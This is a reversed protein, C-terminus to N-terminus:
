KGSAKKRAYYRKCAAKNREEVTGRLLSKIMNHEWRHRNMRSDFSDIDNITIESQEKLWKRYLDSSIILSITKELIEGYNKYRFGQKLAKKFESSM